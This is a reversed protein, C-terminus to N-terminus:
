QFRVVSASRSWLGELNYFEREEKGFVHVVVDGYDLLVWGSDATGETRRPRPRAGDLRLEEDMAQLLSNLQRTSTATAIVFYDALSSVHSIDLLVIDEAQRETLVDVIAQALAAPDTLRTSRL